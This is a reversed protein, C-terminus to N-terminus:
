LGRLSASPPALPAEKPMRWSQTHLAWAGATPFKCVEQHGRPRSNHRWDRGPHDLNEPSVIGRNQRATVGGRQERTYYEWSQESRYLVRPNGYKTGRDLYENSPSSPAEVAEEDRYTSDTSPPALRGEGTRQLLSLETPRSPNKRPSSRSEDM